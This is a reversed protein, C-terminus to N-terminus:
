QNLLIRDVMGYLQSPSQHTTPAPLGDRTVRARIWTYNGTLTFGFADMEETDVQEEFDFWEDSLDLGRPYHIPEIADFWDSETPEAVLTAEIHITGKFASTHIAITHRHAAAVYRDARVPQGTVTLNDQTTPLLLISKRSM